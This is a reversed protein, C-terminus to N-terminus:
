GDLKQRTRETRRDSRGQMHQALAAILQDGEALAASAENAAKAVLIQMRAFVRREAPASPCPLQDVAASAVQAITEVRLIAAHLAEIADSPRFNDIPHKNQVSDRSSRHKRM